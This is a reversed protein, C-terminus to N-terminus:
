RRIRALAEALSVEAASGLLLDAAGFRAPDVHPNPIAVCALGAAQAAAVGHPTDEVAIAQAPALKLRDLALLYVDPAPKPLAVEDGFAFVEFEGTRGFQDLLTAVWITPSSSAVACRIGARRAEALWADIGDRLGLDRNLANRYAQRREHTAERDFGPGVAEALRRYREVTTDGGHDAFFTALDLELGHERWANQWSALGTSETDVLLGDFDFIVAETQM